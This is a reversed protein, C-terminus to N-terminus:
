HYTWRAPTSDRAIRATDSGTPIQVRAYVMTVRNACIIFLYRHSNNSFARWDVKSPACVGNIPHSHGMGLFDRRKPCSEYNVWELHTNRIFAMLVYNVFVENGRRRGYFCSAFEVGDNGMQITEYFFVLNNEVLRSKRLLPSTTVPNGVYGGYSSLQYDAHACAMVLLMPLVLRGTKM